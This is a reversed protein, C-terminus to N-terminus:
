YLTKTIEFICVIKGYNPDNFRGINIFLNNGTINGFSQLKSELDENPMAGPYYFLYVQYNYPLCDFFINEGIDRDKEDLNETKKIFALSYSM